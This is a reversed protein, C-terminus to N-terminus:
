HNESVLGVDFGPVFSWSSLLNKSLASYIFSYLSADEVSM